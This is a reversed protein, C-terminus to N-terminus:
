GIDPKDWKARVKDVKVQATKLHAELQEIVQMGREYKAIAQDIDIDNSELQELIDNLEDNLKNYDINKTAM